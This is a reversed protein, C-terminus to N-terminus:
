FKRRLKKRVLFKLTKFTKKTTLGKMPTITNLKKNNSDKISFDINDWIITARRATKGNPGILYNVIKAPIKNHVIKM